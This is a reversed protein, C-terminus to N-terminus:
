KRKLTNVIRRLLYKVQTKLNLDSYKKAVYLFGKRKYEEDFVERNPNYKAPHNLQPQSCDEKNVEQTFHGKEISTFLSLGKGTNIIALSVGKNDSFKDSIKEWGWFDSITIDSCRDYSTFQCNYCSHRLCIHSYFLKKFTIFSHEKNCQFTEKQVNWGKRKDRFYAKKIKGYKNEIYVLYDNWIQPSPVGHCIIDVLFLKESLKTPVASKVAAVQCPTGTFLVTLGNRLDTKISEFCNEINSQTYKSYRLEEREENNTARKHLVHFCQDFAAGYVIGGNALILDSLIVFAAGTQSKLLEAEDKHRLAFYRQTFDSQPVPKEFPCKKVCLGCNTCKEIDVVPYRFGLTDPQMIIAQKACINACLGCGCCEERRKTSINNISSM